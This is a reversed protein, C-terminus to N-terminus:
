VSQTPLARVPTRPCGARYLDRSRALRRRYVVKAMIKWLIVRLESDPTCTFEHKDKDEGWVVKTGKSQIERSAWEEKGNIRIQIVYKGPYQLRTRKPLGLVTVASCLYTSRLSKGIELARAPAAM